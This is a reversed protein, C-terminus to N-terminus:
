FKVDGYMGRKILGDNRVAIKIAYVLNAREERTQITKPTFEAKDSIWSVTGKYSRRDKIGSDAYVTVAQGIKLTTLQDATVYARLKIKSIDSVKFLAKGPIAYEGREAYKSLITGKIPSKIVSKRIKDDLMEQQVTLGQSQSSLSNNSGVVQEQTAAIQKKIIEIQYDIDDVQKETAANNKLLSGFRKKEKELNVIQQRLSALQKRDDLKKFIMASKNTRLAKKNLSLQLTDIYGLPANSEVTNGEEPIFSMIEGTGEASVIIETTEFIGSADYDSDNGNCSCIISASCLLLLKYAKM